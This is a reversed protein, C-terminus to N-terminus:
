VLRPRAREEMWTPFPAPCTALDPAARHWAEMRDLWENAAAGAGPDSCAQRFADFLPSQQAGPVDRDRSKEFVATLRDKLVRDLDPQSRTTWSVPEDPQPLGLTGESDKSGDRVADRVCFEM